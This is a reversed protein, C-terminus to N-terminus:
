SAPGNKESIRDANLQLAANTSTPPDVKVLYAPTAPSSASSPEAAM